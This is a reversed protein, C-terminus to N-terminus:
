GANLTMVAEIIPTVQGGIYIGDTGPIPAM